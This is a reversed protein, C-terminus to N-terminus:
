KLFLPSVSCEKILQLNHPQSLSFCNQRWNGSFFWTHQFFAEVNVTGSAAEEPLNYMWYKFSIVSSMLELQFIQNTENQKTKTFPSNVYRLLVPSQLLEVISCDSLRIPSFCSHSPSSVVPCLLLMDIDEPLLVEIVTTHAAFYTEKKGGLVIKHFLLTHNERNSTLIWVSPWFCNCM